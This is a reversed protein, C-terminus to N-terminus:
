LAATLPAPGPDGVSSSRRPVGRWQWSRLVANLGVAAFIVITVEAPARYRVSGITPLVTWVVVAPFVLLPYVPVKRRRTVIVGLAAFPLLAWYAFFAIRFVGISTGRVTEFRMQQFPRFFGFTRGVRAASVAVAGAKHARIFDTGRRRLEADRQFPDEGPKAPVLYTCAGSFYAYFEGHYTLPCNGQAFAAGVAGTLLVPRDFRASLYISWPAMIAICVAAASALWGIRRKWEIERRALLLPVILFLAVIVLESETMALVGVAGGLAIALGLRPTARFKYALWITTAIGLMALPESLVEREYLWLFPYLAALSAAILATRVGLATRTAVGVMVVTATGVVNTVLQHQLWTRLGLKTAGALVITWGPPHGTDTTGFRLPNVFGKGDALLIAGYHYRFGDGGVLHNRLVISYVVRLFLGALAILSLQFGFRRARTSSKAAM